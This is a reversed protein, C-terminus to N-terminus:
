LTAGSWDSHNEFLLDHLKWAKDQGQDKACEWAEASKEALPHIERLPFDKYVLRIKDGYAAELQKITGYAQACYPCQFDSYEVITVKANAGGRTTASGVEIQKPVAIFAPQAGAGAGALSADKYSKYDNSGTGAIERDIIEKFSNLPFAGGLFKGNVFFGPTGQVGDKIGQQYDAEVVSAKSGDGVCKVLRNGDLGAQKAFGKLADNLTNYKGAAAQSGTGTGANNAGGGGTSTSGAELYKVKSWLSGLGFAMVVILVMLIPTFREM